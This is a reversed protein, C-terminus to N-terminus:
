VETINKKRGNQFLYKNFNGKEQVIVEGHMKSDTWNAIYVKNEANFIGFGNKRNNRFEGEYKKGNKWIMIGNGHMQNDLWEGNYVRGDKFHFGGIGEIKDERFEGEYKGENIFFIGFGNKKGHRFDGEYIYKKKNILNIGFGNLLNNKWIGMLSYEPSKYLGFGDAKENKWFGKFIDNNTKYFVGFFNARYNVIGGIYYNGNKFLIKGKQEPNFQKFYFKRITKIEKESESSINKQSVILSNNNCNNSNKERSSEKSSFKNLLNSESTLFTNAKYVRRFNDEFFNNSLNPIEIQMYSNKRNIVSDGIQFRNDSKKNRSLQFNNDCIYFHDKSKEDKEEELNSIKYNNKNLLEFENQDFNNIFM